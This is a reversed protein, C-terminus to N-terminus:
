SVRVTTEDLPRNVDILVCGATLAGHPLGDAKQTAVLARVVGAVLHRLTNAPLAVRGRILDELSAPPHDVSIYTTEGDRAIETVRAWADGSNTALQQQRNLSEVFASREVATRPHATMSKPPRYTVLRVTPADPRNAPRAACVAVLGDDNLTQLIEYRGLTAM